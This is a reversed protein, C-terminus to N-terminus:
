YSQISYLGTSLNDGNRRNPWSARLGFALFRYFAACRGWLCERASMVGESGRHKLAALEQGNSTYKGIAFMLMSCFSSTTASPIDIITYICGTGCCAPRAETRNDEYDSKTCIEEEEIKKYGDSLLKITELTCCSSNRRAKSLM